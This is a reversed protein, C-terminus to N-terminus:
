SGTGQVSWASASSDSDFCSKCPVKLTFSRVSALLLLFLPNLTPRTSSRSLRGAELRLAQERLRITVGPGAYGYANAVHVTVAGAFGLAPVMCTAQTDSVFTAAAM